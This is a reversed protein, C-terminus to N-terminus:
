FRSCTKNINPLPYKDSIIIKNLLRYNVCLRDIGEGAGDKKEVVIINFAYLSNSEEIVENELMIKIQNEIQKHEKPIYYGIKEVVPIDTILRITYEIMLCNEIDHPRKSVIEDFEDLIQQVKELYTTTIEYLNAELESVLHLM